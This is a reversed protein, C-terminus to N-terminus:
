KRIIKKILRRYIHLISKFTSLFIVKGVGDNEYGFYTTNLRTLTEATM